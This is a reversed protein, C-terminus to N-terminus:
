TAANPGLTVSSQCGKKQCGFLMPRRSRVFSLGAPDGPERTEFRSLTENEWSVVRALRRLEGSLSGFPWMTVGADGRRQLSPTPQSGRSHWPIAGMPLTGWPVLM